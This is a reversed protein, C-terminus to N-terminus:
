RCIPLVEIFSKFNRVPDFVENVHRLWYLLDILHSDNQFLEGELHGWGASGVEHLEQVCFEVISQENSVV